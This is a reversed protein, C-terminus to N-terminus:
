VIWSIVLEALPLVVLLLIVLLMVFTNYMAHVTGSIATASIQNKTRKYDWLYILLFAFGTLSLAIGAAFSYWINIIHVTGFIFSARIRESWTWKEAGARFVMEEWLALKLWFNYFGNKSAPENDLVRQLETHKVFSGLKLVAYIGLGWAAAVAFNSPLFLAFFKTLLSVVSYNLFPVQLFLYVLGVTGAFLVLVLPFFRWISKGDRTAAKHALFPPVYLAGPDKPMVRRLFRALPGQDARQHKLEVSLLAAVDDPISTLHIVM